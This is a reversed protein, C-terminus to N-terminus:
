LILKLGDILIKRKDPNMYVDRYFDTYGPYKSKIYITLKDM